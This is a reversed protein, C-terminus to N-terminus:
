VASILNVLTLSVNYKLLEVLVDRRAHKDTNRYHVVSAKAVLLSFVVIIIGEGIGGMRFILAMTSTDMEMDMPMTTTNGIGGMDMSDNGMGAMDMSANGMADMETSPASTMPEMGGM